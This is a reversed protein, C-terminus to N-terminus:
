GPCVIKRAQTAGAFHKVVEENMRSISVQETNLESAIVEDIKTINGPENGRGAIIDEGVRCLQKLAKNSFLRWDPLTVDRYEYLQIKSLGNGQSRARCFIDLCVCTSNMIAFPILPDIPALPTLGYFNDAFVRKPNYIHRPRGRLYYNFIIPAYPAERHFYWNNPREKFWTLIAVNREPDDKAITLRRQIEAIVAANPTRDPYQLLASEQHDDSVVLGSVQSSKKVFPTAGVALGDNLKMLFFSAQKLRLGRKTHFLTSLPVTGHIESLWSKKRAILTPYKDPEGTFQADTRTATIITANILREQFPQESLNITEINNCNAQLVKSLWHGFKTYLWSDYVICILKGGPNLEALAKVIFYVYLNATGPVNVGYRERFISQYQSKRDIWEQRVYPPNMIVIDCPDIRELISDCCELNITQKTESLVKHTTKVMKHDIDRLILKDDVRLKGTALLSLPFTGPGVAPDLITIARQPRERLCELAMRTAIEYPTMVQGFLEAESRPRGALSRPDTNAAKRQSALSNENTSIKLMSDM